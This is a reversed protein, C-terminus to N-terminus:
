RHYVTQPCSIHLDLKVTTSDWLNNAGLRITCNESNQCIIQFIICLFLECHRWFAQQSNIISVWDNLITCFSPFVLRYPQIYVSNSADRNYVARRRQFTGRWVDREQIMWRTGWVNLRGTKLGTKWRNVQGFLQRTGQRWLRRTSSRCIGLQSMQRGRVTPAVILSLNLFISKLLQYTNLTKETNIIEIAILIFHM